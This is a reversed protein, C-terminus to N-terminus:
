ILQDRGRPLASRATHRAFPAFGGAAFQYGPVRHRWTALLHEGSLSHNPLPLLIKSDVIVM